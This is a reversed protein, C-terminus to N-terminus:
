PFDLKYNYLATNELPPADGGASSYELTILLQDELSSKGLRGIKQKLQNHSRVIELM